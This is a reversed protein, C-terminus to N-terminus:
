REIWQCELFNAAVQSDTGNGASVVVHADKAFHLWGNSEIDIPIQLDTDDATVASWVETTDNRTVGDSVGEYKKLKGFVKITGIVNANGTCTKLIVSRGSMPTVGIRIDYVTGAANTGVGSDMLIRAGGGNVGSLPVTVKLDNTGSTAVQDKMEDSQDDRKAGLLQCGYSALADIADCLEGMTDYAASFLTYSGASVGFTTDATGAPAYATIVTTTITVVAETATGVYYLRLAEGTVGDFRQSINIESLKKVELADRNAQARGALPLACLFAATLPLLIKKMNKTMKM